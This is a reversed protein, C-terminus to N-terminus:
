GCRQRFKRHEAYGHLGLRQGADIRKIGDDLHRGAHRDPREGDALGAGGVSRPPRRADPPIPTVAELSTFSFGPSVMPIRPPPCNPRISAIAAARSPRRQLTNEGSGSEGANSTTSFAVQASYASTLASSSNALSTSMM